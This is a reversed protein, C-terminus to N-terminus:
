PTAAAAGWVRELPEADIHVSSLRLAHAGGDIQVSYRNRMNKALALAEAKDKLGFVINGVPKGQHDPVAAWEGIQVEEGAAAKRFQRGALQGLQTALNLFLGEPDAGPSGDFLLNVRGDPIM